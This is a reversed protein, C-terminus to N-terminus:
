GEGMLPGQQRRTVREIETNLRDINANAAATHEGEAQLQARLNANEETLQAIIFPIRNTIVAHKFGELRGNAWIKFEYTPDDPWWVKFVWDDDTPERNSVVGWIHIATETIDTTDIAPAIEEISEIRLMGDPLRGGKVKVSKDPGGAYDIGFFPRPPIRDVWRISGPRTMEDFESGAPVVMPPEAMEYTKAFIDPKCPYFHVGDPEPLIWDGPALYAKQEHVTTVFCGHYDIGVGPWNKSIDAIVVEDPWQRAEIPDGPIRRYKM